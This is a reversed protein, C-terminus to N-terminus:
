KAFFLNPQSAYPKRIDINPPVLVNYFLNAAAAQGLSLFFPGILPISTLFVFPLTFRPTLVTDEVIKVWDTGMTTRADM